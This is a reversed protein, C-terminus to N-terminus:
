QISRIQVYTAKITVGKRIFGRDVLIRVAARITPTSIGAKGIERIIQQQTVPTKATRARAGIFEMIKRQLPSTYVQYCEIIM